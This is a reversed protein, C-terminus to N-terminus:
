IVYWLGRERGLVHWEEQLCKKIENFHKDAYTTVDEEGTYPDYYKELVEDDSLMTLINIYFNDPNMSGLEGDWGDFYDDIADLISVPLNNLSDGYAYMPFLDSYYDLTVNISM